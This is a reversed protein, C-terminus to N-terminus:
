VNLFKRVDMVDKKWRIIGHTLQKENLPKRLHDNMGVSRCMKIDEDTDCNTLALIPVKLRLKERIISTTEYGNLGPMNIDMFILDFKEKIIMDLAHYGNCAIQLECGIKSFLKMALAQNFVNDEVYLVKCNSVALVTHSRGAAPSDPLKKNAPSTETLTSYSNM